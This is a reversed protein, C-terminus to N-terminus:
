YNSVGIKIAAARSEPTLAPARHVLVYATEVVSVREPNEAQPVFGKQGRQSQIELSLHDEQGAEWTMSVVPVEM